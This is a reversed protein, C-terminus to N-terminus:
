AGGQAQEAKRKLAVLYDSLASDATELLDVALEDACVRLDEVAESRTSGTGHVPLIDTDATWHRHWAREAKVEIEGFGTDIKM